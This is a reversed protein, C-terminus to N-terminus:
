TSRAGTQAVTTLGTRVGRSVSWRASLRCTSWPRTRPTSSRGGNPSVAPAGLRNVGSEFGAARMQEPTVSSKHLRGVLDVYETYGMPALDAEAEALEVELFGPNVVSWPSPTSLVIRKRAIRALEALAPAVDDPLLHELNEISIATDVDNDPLPVGTSDALHLEDLPNCRGLAEITAPSWDVGVLRDPASVGDREWSETFHWASRLLYGLVGSGCGIDAVSSGVVKLMAEHGLGPSSTQGM